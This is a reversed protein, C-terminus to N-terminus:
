AGANMKRTGSRLTIFWRMYRSFHRGGMKSQARLNHVLVLGEKRLNSRKVGM